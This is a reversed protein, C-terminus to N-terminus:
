DNGRASTMEKHWENIARGHHLNTKVFRAGIKEYFKNARTNSKETLITYPGRLGKSVMFKEMEEVLKQALGTGRAEPRVVIAVLEAPPRDTHNQEKGKVKALVGKIVWSISSWSLLRFNAAKVLKILQGKFAMSRAKPYDSTGIVVGVINGSADRAAYGCSYEQQVVKSYFRAGFRNGLKSILANPVATAVLDAVEIWGSEGVEGINYNALTKSMFPM